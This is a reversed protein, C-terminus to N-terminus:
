VLAEWAGGGIWSPGSFAVSAVAGPAMTSSAGSGRTGTALSPPFSASKVDDGVVNNGRTLNGTDGADIQALFGVGGLGPAGLLSAGTLEV